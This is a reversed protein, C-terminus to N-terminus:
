GESALFDAVTPYRLALRLERALRDNRLRRSESMFSLLTPELRQAAEARAIRPPRPLGRADAVLDFYDGMRLESADSAHVVRQARGRFLAAVLARALDDAHIHNTFVDDEARLAPTGRQLRAEPLRDGAYIGPIRLISTRWGGGAGFWRVRREAAVRRQARATTPRVPRTEDVWAGGCDCYVGSTSAYVLTRVRAHHKLRGARPSRDPLIRRKTMSLAVSAGQAPGAARLSGRLSGPRSLVHLLAATRPDDTGSAPPPALHLVRPALGRLRRLSDIRDLDALVPVAGAARLPVRGADRSTVAFVRFKSQLAPLCRQGVDGCGVILIRPRGLRPMPQPSRAAAQTMMM